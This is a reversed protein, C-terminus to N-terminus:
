AYVLNADQTSRNFKRKVASLQEVTDIDWAAEPLPLEVVPLNTQQLIHKAGQDGSLQKLAPFCSRPFLAPVGRKGQYFSCVINDGTFADLMTKLQATPVCPQDALLIFAADFRQEIHDIGVAISKGMGARWQRNIILAMGSVSPAIQQHNAGLVGYVAGPLLQNAQDISHQLLSSDGLAALQKISGFRTSAGAALILIAIRDMLAM